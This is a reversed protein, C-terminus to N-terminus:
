DAAYGVGRVTRLPSHEGLKARLQAVHVDVTRTGGAATYGWVGSLLEDRTIVQGPRRLLYMLLDYETATLHVENGGAYTRHGALDVALGRHALLRPAGPGSGDAAGGATPDAAGPGGISRRLVAVVRAVLERPSFPKTLYDDAGLELGHIRDFEDDRATVFLVPVWNNEARLQRCVETGDVDPLGVDLVLAVPHLRRVAALTGAGTTEVQVGFGERSLYLRELDAINAEDEAVLVLGRREGM